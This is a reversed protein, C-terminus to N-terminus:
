SPSELVHLASWTLWRSLDHLSGVQRDARGSLHQTQTGPRSSRCHNSRGDVHRTSNRPWNAPSTAWNLPSATLPSLVPLRPSVAAPQECPQQLPRPDCDSCALSDSPYPGPDIPVTHRNYRGRGRWVQTQRPTWETPVHREPLDPTRSGCAACTRYVLPENVIWTAPEGPADADVLYLGAQTEWSAPLDRDPAFYTSVVCGPRLVPGAVRELGEADFQGPETLYHRGFEGAAM